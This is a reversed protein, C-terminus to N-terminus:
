APRLLLQALTEALWEVHGVLQDGRVHDLVLIEPGVWAGPGSPTFATIADSRRANGSKWKVISSTATRSSRTHSRM